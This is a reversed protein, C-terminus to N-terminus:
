KIAEKTKAPRKALVSQQVIQFVNGAVWYLLLGAPFTRGWFLMMVPFLYLMMTQSSDKKAGKPSMMASQFYTTIAALIPLIFPIAIGGLFIVDPSALNSMWLFATDAALYAEENPFVYVTPNRLANFLGILIPFQILLPLCGALPNVKYEKYLEMTKQNMKEPNDKYKEKLEQIKPNIEQMSKMSKTQTMTLPLLILKVVITFVIISIGYNGIIDYIIKLLSGLLNAM